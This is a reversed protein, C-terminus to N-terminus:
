KPGWGAPPEAFPTCACVTLVDEPVLERTGVLWMKEGTQKDEVAFYVTGTWEFGYEKRFEEPTPWKRHYNQCIKCTAIDFMIFDRVCGPKKGRDFSYIGASCYYDKNIETM